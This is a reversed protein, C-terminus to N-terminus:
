ICRTNWATLLCVANSFPIIHSHLCIHAGAQQHYEWLKFMNTAFVYSIGTTYFSQLLTSSNEVDTAGSVQLELVIVQLVACM